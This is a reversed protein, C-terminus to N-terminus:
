WTILLGLGTFGVLVFKERLIKLISRAALVDAASVRSRVEASRFAPRTGTPCRISPNGWGVVRVIGHDDVISMSSLPHPAWASSKSGWAPSETDGIRAVM